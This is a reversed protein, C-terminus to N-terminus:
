YRELLGEIYAREDPTLDPDALRDRLTQVVSRIREPDSLGPIAVGAEGYARGLPDSGTAGQAGGGQGRGQSQGEGDERAQRADRVAEAAEALSSIADEQLAGAVGLDGRELARAAAEMASRARAAAEEGAGGEETGLDGLRGALARQQAGLGDAGRDGRRAAFTDDALDRQERILEGADELAGTAGGGDEGGQGGQGTGGAQGGQQGQGGRQGEGDGSQGQGEQAISLNELLQSLQSLLDRAEDRAGRSAADRMREILDDLADDGLTQGDATAEADGSRALAAVYDEMAARLADILQRIEEDPAGRALADRLAGEAAQLAARAAALSDDELAVALTWFSDITSPVDRGEDRMVRRFATRLLLFEQPGGAYHEPAYTLADLLRATRPWSRPAVALKRREEIVTRALPDYFSRAPLRVPVPPTADSQGAGDEVELSLLVDLGAWPHETLDLTADRPGPAGALALLPVALPAALVSEEPAPADPALRQPALRLIVRAATVGYDDNTEARLRLGAAGEPEPAATLRVGPARDPTVAVPWVTRRGGIRLSLAANDDLEHDLSAVEEDRAVPLRTRGAATVVDLRARPPARRGSLRLRLVSGSPVSVETQLGEPPAGGRVLFVPARGTYDPPDLWLDAVVVREPGLPPTLAGALRAPADRGAFALALALLMAAGFRLGLPDARGATSRPRSLRPRRAIRRLRAQHALWYPDDPASAAPRDGLARLTGVPLRSDREIRALAAARDPWRVRRAGLVVLVVVGLAGAAVGALHAWWPLREHLGLLALALLVMATGLAPLLAPYAREFALQAWARPVMGPPVARRPARPPRSPNAPM